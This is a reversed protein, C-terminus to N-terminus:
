HSNVRVNSLTVERQQKNPHSETNTTHINCQKISNYKKILLEM